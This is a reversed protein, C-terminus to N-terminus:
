AYMLEIIIIKKKHTTKIKRKKTINTVNRGGRGGRLMEDGVDGVYCETGWTGWTVNRGGRGGRLMGDGVDGM